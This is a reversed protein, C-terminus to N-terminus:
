TGTSPSDNRHMSVRADFLVSARGQMLCVERILISFEYIATRPDGSLLRASVTLADEFVDLRPYHLRVARVSALVGHPPSGSQPNDGRQELAAGGVLAAHLAMAQAAYEIGNASSLGESDRLPNQTSCHGLSQCTISHADWAQVSDLLCMAGSHPLMARIQAQGLPEGPADIM